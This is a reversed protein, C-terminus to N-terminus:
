LVPDLSPKSVASEMSVDCPQSQTVVQVSLVLFSVFKALPLANSNAAVHSVQHSVWISEVLIEASAPLELM